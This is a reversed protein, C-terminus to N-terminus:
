DALAVPEPNRILDRALAGASGLGLLLRLIIGMTSIALGTTLLIARSGYAHFGFILAAQLVGLGAPTIPLAALFLEVPEFAMVQRFPVHTGFSILMVYLMVGQMVFIPARILILRVYHSLRAQRFSELSPRDYVWRALVSSPRGRRWFWAVLALGAAMAAPYLWAHGLLSDPVLIAAVLGMLAMVQLDILALFVMTAGGSFLPVGKRRRMFLVLATGGAVQNIAQLFYQAANGPLMERFSTPTHFYSFLKSLLINEGLFWFVLSGLCALLFLPANAHRIASAFQQLPIGRALFFIISAALGYALLRRVWTSM